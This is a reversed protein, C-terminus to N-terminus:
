CSVTLLYTFAIYFYNDFCSDQLKHVEAQCLTSLPEHMMALHPYCRLIQKRLAILKHLARHGNNNNNHIWRGRLLFLVYYDFLFGCKTLRSLTQSVRARSDSSDLTAHRIEAILWLMITARLLPPSLPVNSERAAVVMVAIWVLVYAKGM